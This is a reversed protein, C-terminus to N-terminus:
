GVSYRQKPPILAININFTGIGETALVDGFILLGTIHALHGGEEIRRRGHHTHERGHGHEIM